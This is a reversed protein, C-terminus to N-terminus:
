NVDKQEAARAQKLEDKKAALADRWGSLKEEIAEIEAELQAAYSRVRDAIADGLSVSADAAGGSGNSTSM